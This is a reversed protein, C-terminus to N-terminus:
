AGGAVVASVNPLTMWAPVFKEITPITKIAPKNFDPSQELDLLLIDSKENM